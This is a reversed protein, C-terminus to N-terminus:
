FYLGTFISQLTYQKNPFIFWAEKIQCIKIEESGLFQDFQISGQKAIESFIIKNFANMNKIYPFSATKSHKIVIYSCNEVCLIDNEQAATEVTSESGYTENLFKNETMITHDEISLSEITQSLIDKSLSQCKMKKGISCINYQEPTLKVLAAMIDATLIFAIINIHSMKGLEDQVKTDLFHDSGCGICFLERENKYNLDSPLNDDNKLDKIELLIDLLEKSKNYLWHTDAPSLFWGTYWPIIEDWQRLRYEFYQATLGQTNSKALVQSDFFFKKSTDAIIITYQFQRAIQIYPNVEWKRVHTNRIVIVPISKRCGDEVKKRCWEHSKIGSKKDRPESLLKEFYQKASFIISSPYLTTMMAALTEKGTGPPGRILFIIRNHKKLYEITADDQLFPFTFIKEPAEDSGPVPLKKENSRSIKNYNPNKYFQDLKKKENTKSSRYIKSNNRRGEM